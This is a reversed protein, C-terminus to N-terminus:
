QNTQKPKELTQEAAARLEKRRADPLKAWNAREPEPIRSWVALPVGAAKAEEDVIYEMFTLEGSYHFSIYDHNEEYWQQANAYLDGQWYEDLLLAHRVVAKARPFDTARAYEVLVPFSDAQRFYAYVAMANNKLAESASVANPDKVINQLEQLRLRLIDVVTEDLPGKCFAQAALLLADIGPRAAAARMASLYLINHETIDVDPGVRATLISELDPLVAPDDMGGLATVAAKKSWADGYEGWIFGRLIRVASARDSSKAIRAIAARNFFSTEDRMANLMKEDTMRAVEEEPRTNILAYRNGMENYVVVTPLLEDRPILVVDCPYTMAKGAGDRPLTERYDVRICKKEFDREISIVRIDYDTTPRSGGSVFLVFNNDFDVPLAAAESVCDAFDSQNDFLYITTYDLQVAFSTDPKIPRVIPVATEKASVSSQRAREAQHCASVALM